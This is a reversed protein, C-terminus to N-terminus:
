QIDIMVENRRLFPITWPPDYGASRPDSLMIYGNESLWTKLLEAQQRFNDESLFGSFRISAVKKGPIKEIQVNEDLPQPITELSYQAPLVFSMVWKDKFPQQLVPATMAIKESAKERVVPATMAIEQRKLNKGFIYGALRRFGITTSEEYNAAVETRAILFDNYQRIEINKSTLLVSFPPEESTRIGIVSCGGFVISSILTFLTTKM